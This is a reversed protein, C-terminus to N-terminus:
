KFCDKPYYAKGDIIIDSYCSYGSPSVQYFSWDYPTGQNGIFMIAFYDDTFTPKKIVYTGSKNDERVIYKGGTTYEKYKRKNEFYGNEYFYLYWSIITLSNSGAEGGFTGIIGNTGSKRSYGIMKIDPTNIYAINDADWESKDIPAYDKVEVIKEENSNTPVNQKCSVITFLGLVILLIKKM